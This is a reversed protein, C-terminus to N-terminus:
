KETFNYLSNNIYLKNVDFLSTIPIQKEALEKCTYTKGTSDKYSCKQCPHQCNSFLIIIVIALMAMSLIVLSWSFIIRKDM